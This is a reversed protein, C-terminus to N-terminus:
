DETDPTGVAVLGEEAREIQKGARTWRAQLKSEISDTDCGIDELCADWRISAKAFENYSTELPM